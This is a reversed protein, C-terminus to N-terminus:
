LEGLFHELRGAANTSVSLSDLVVRQAKMGHTQADQPNTEYRRIARGISKPDLGCFLGNYGPVLYEMAAGTQYSAIVALGAAMAEAVAVAWGDHRSPFLFVDHRGFLEPLARPEVFGVLEIREDTEALSGLEQARPGTGAITLRSSGEAYRSFATALNIVNKRDILQGAYLYRLGSGRRERTVEAFRSLESSYPIVVTDCFRSYYQGALKGNAITFDVGGLRRAIVREKLAAKLASAPLPRELWYGVRLGNDGTLRLLRRLPLLRYGGIILFEPSLERLTAALRSLFRPRERDVFRTSISETDLSWPANALSGETFVATYQFLKSAASCFDLQYPTPTNSVLVVKAM